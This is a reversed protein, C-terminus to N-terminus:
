QNLPREEPVSEPPNSGDSSMLPQYNKQMSAQLEALSLSKKLGGGGGGAGASAANSLAEASDLDM